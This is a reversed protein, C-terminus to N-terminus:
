LENLMSLRTSAWDNTPLRLEVLRRRAGLAGGARVGVLVWADFLEEGLFGDDLM